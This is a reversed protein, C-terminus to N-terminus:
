LTNLSLGRAIKIKEIKLSNLLLVLSCDTITEQSAKRSTLSHIIRLPSGGSSVKEHLDLSEAHLASIHASPHVSM